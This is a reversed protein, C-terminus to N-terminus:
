RIADEIAPKLGIHIAPRIGPLTAGPIQRIAANIQSQTVDGKALGSARALGVSINALDEFAGASPGMVAGLANRSAYRSVGGSRDQDGAVASALATFGVSPGGYSASLKDATNSVEFPLSLLGTRDLGDAVWLGPNELLRNANKTDGREMYKLWAIMMGMATGFVMQEAFRHPREQLGAILVRQHSALGFSKFQMIIRGWNTRTWLPQDAVGKTVVTRDVDRNLASAWARRAFDDDWKSTNAGWIGREQVGYKGLQESIRGATNEDIGLFAMYARERKGAGSWNLANRAMRNQTMVAAVQKVGDNWLALGTAKSFVNTANSLFKDFRSGYRYPDNLEALTAIRSQLVTEVVAGLDRADARSIKAAQLNSVLGPLAERMTARVGHVGILRMTDAISTLTVGGLLRMYNWALAARTLKSWDSGEEAARYTGRILDRFAELNSVDRAETRDLKVREKETKAQKRLNKYDQRIEAIQDKLDARGFKEALEVEAAMTRTYRRMILEMDNELFDEVLADEIGFTREKLPGRKVPVIWDPIDGEGKGILQNFVSTTVEEIYDDIDAKSVFDPRDKAPIGAIAKRFYENAIQRFEEEQAILRQRNWLRTVYSAATTVKVDQPLLGNDIARKLLPDFIEDRAQQAARTVFEDGLEDVDGRRGARAVRINFEGQTGEFGGKKAQRYLSKNSRIWKGLAGRQYQKVLNEVAPGVTEGQMNMKTYITNDVMQNYVERVRLSPSMMTQVGPNIKVFETANAIARAVAPGGVGLDDIKIEPTAAAGASAKMRGVIIEAVDAPNATETALEEELRTGFKMWDSGSLIRAGAAGILGGLVITGGINMATETPTRLEQTAQLGAEQVTAGAGAGLGVSLMTRGTSYGVKGARVFAGAPVFITPDTMGAAMSLATGTWGAAALTKRDRTERDIDAKVAKAADPNYVTEFRPAHDEYGKIDDFVDYGPDVRFFDETAMDVRRSAMSSGILNETRYAATLTELFDPSPQDYPSLGVDIASGEVGSSTDFPM